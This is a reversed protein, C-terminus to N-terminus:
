CYPHDDDKDKDDKDKGDKDKDRHKEPKNYVPHGEENYVKGKGSYKETEKKADEEKEFLKEVTTFINNKWETIKAKYKDRHKM